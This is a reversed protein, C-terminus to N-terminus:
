SLQQQDLWKKEIVYSVILGLGGFILVCGFYVAAAKDDSIKASIM